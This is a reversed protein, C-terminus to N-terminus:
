IDELAEASFVQEELWVVAEPEDQKERTSCSEKISLRRGPSTYEWQRGNGHSKDTSGRVRVVESGEWGDMSILYYVCRKKLWLSYRTEKWHSMKAWFQIEPGLICATESAFSPSPPIHFIETYIQPFLSVLNRVIMYPQLGLTLMDSEYTEGDTSCM